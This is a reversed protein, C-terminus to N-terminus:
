MKFYLFHQGSIHIQLLPACALKQRLFFISFSPRRNHLWFLLSCLLRNGWIVTLIIIERRGPFKEPVGSSRPAEQEDENSVCVSCPNHQTKHRKAGHFIVCVRASRLRGQVLERCRTWSAPFFTAHSPLGDILFILPFNPRTLYPLPPSKLNLM